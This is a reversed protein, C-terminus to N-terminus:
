STREVEGMVLEAVPKLLRYTLSDRILSPLRADEVGRNFLIATFLLAIIGRALGFFIGVTRDLMGIGDEGQINKSLNRGFWAVLIYVVFFAAGFLILDAVFSPWTKPLMDLLPLRLFFRAALAAALAGFFAGLTALERLFGRSFGMVASLLLVTLAIADFVTFSDLM